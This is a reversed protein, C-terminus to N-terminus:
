FTGNTVAGTVQLTCSWEVRGAVQVSPNFSAVFVSGAVRFQSAVSGGPGWVFPAANSGAVQAAKLGAITGAASVDFPGSITIQDGDALGPIFTKSSTGFTDTPLQSVTQPYSVNDTWQSFNILTNAANGLFFANTTGARFAM